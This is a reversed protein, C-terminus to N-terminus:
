FELLDLNQKIEKTIASTENNLLRELISIKKGKYPTFVALTIGLNQFSNPQYYNIGGELNIYKTAEFEQAIAEIRAQGKKEHSINLQSSRYIKPEYGLKTTTHRLTRELYDVYTGQFNLVISSFDNKDNLSESLNPFTAIRKQFTEHANEAFNLSSIPSNYSAKQLPVTLWKLSRDQCSFKNRHVWGRRPFQVCDLIVFIDALAFLRYYGAYPFFYPQMIAVTTM